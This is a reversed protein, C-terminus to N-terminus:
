TLPVVGLPSYQMSLSEAHFSVARIGVEQSIDEQTDVDVKYFEIGANEALDSLKKFIPSIFKCPGCWEAWFDIVVVKKSSIQLIFM